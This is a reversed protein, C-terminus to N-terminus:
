QMEHMILINETFGQIDRLSDQSPGALSMCRAIKQLINLFCGAAPTLTKEGGSRALLYASWLRATRTHNETPPGYTEGRERVISKVDKSQNM